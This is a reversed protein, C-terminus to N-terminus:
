QYNQQNPETNASARNQCARKGGMDSNIPSTLKKESISYLQLHHTPTQVHAKSRVPCLTQRDRITRQNPERKAIIETQVRKNVINQQNSEHDRQEPVCTRCLGRGYPISRRKSLSANSKSRKLHTKGRGRLVCWFTFCLASMDCTPDHSFPVLIYRLM